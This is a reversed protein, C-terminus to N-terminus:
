LKLFQIKNLINEAIKQGQLLFGPFISDMLICVTDM